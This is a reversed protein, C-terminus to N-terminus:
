ESYSRAATLLMNTVCNELSFYSVVGFSICTKMKIYKM